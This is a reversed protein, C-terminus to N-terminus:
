SVSHNARREHVAEIIQNAVVDPDEHEWFRMVEWGAAELRENTDRDRAQNAEIKERWFRVNSKSTTGHEPCGHWFCGDIFVAIHAKTFVMDATRRPRRSVPFDVRYRLGEAHVRRRVKLEAATDRQGVSKMRRSAVESSPKPCSRDPM